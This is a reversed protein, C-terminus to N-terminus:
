AASGELRILRRERSEATKLLNATSQLLSNVTEQFHASKERTAQMERDSKERMEQMARDSKERAEQMKRSFTERAEQMEIISKERMAELERFFLELNMTLANLREELSM